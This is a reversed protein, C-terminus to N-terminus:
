DMDSERPGIFQMLVGDVHARTIVRGSHIRAWQRATTRFAELNSYDAHRVFLHVQGDILQEVKGRYGTILRDTPIRYPQYPM